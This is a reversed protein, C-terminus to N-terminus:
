DLLGDARGAGTTGGDVVMVTGTTYAGARSALYVASGGIEEPRGIRRLPITSTAASLVDVGGAVSAAARGEFVGPAIANVLIHEAALRRAHQRTLQHVAAKSAAYVYNETVPVVIGDICGINIVRAPDDASASARLLPLAAVTLYHLTKVNLGMVKDWGVEPLEELAGEWTAGANNVLVDLRDTRQAVEAMLAQIGTLSSLDAAVAEVQGLESLRTLVVDLEANKRACIIVRAGARLFEASIAAGIGRSGGTVLATRGALSFLDIM